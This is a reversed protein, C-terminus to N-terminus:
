ARKLVTVTRQVAAGGGSEVRDLIATALRVPGEGALQSAVSRIVEAGSAGLNEVISPGVLVAVDGRGFALAVGRGGGEMEVLEIRQSAGTAAIHHVVCVDGSIAVDLRSSEPDYRAVLIQPRLAGAEGSGLGSGLIARNIQDVLVAPALGYPAVARFTSRGVLAAAAVEALEDGLVEGLTVVVPPATSAAGAAPAVALAESFDGGLRDESAGCVAMHLGGAQAGVVPTTIVAAKSIRKGVNAEAEDLVRSQSGAQREYSDLGSAVMAASAAVMELDGEDFRRFGEDDLHIIGVVEGSRLIPVCMVSRMKQDSISSSRNLRDDQTADQSLVAAQGDMVHRIVTRSVRVGDQPSRLGALCRFSDAQGVRMLVCGRATQFTEGFVSMVEQMLSRIGDSVIVAHSVGQLFQLRQKLSEADEAAVAKGLEAAEGVPATAIINSDVDDELDAMGLDDDDPEEVDVVLRMAVDRVVVVDSHRLIAREGHDFSRDGNVVMSQWPRLNKFHVFRGRRTIEALRDDESASSSLSASKTGDKLEKIVLFQVQTSLDLAVGREAGMIVMFSAQM